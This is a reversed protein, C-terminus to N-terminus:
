TKRKKTILSECEPEGEDAGWGKCGLDPRLPMYQEIKALVFNVTVITQGLIGSYM